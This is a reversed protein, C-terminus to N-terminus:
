VNNGDKGGIYRPEWLYDDISFFTLPREKRKSPTKIEFTCCELATPSLKRMLEKYQSIRSEGNKRYSENRVAILIKLPKKPTYGGQIVAVIIQQVEALTKGYRFGSMYLEDLKQDIEDYDM